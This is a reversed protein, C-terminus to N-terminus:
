GVASEAEKLIWDRFLAAPENLEIEAPRILYFAREDRM